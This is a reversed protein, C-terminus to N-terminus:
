QMFIMIFNNIQEKKFWGLIIDTNKCDKVPCGVPFLVVFVDVVVPYHLNYYIEKYIMHSCSESAYCLM